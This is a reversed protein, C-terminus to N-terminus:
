AVDMESTATGSEFIGISSFRRPLCPPVRPWERTKNLASWVDLYGAGGTFNDYRSGYVQEM